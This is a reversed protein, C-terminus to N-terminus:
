SAGARSCTTCAPRGTRAKSSTTRRSQWGPCEGGSPPWPTPARTLEKEKVLLQEWATQWEEPSVIPPTNM